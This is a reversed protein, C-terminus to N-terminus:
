TYRNNLIHRHNDEISAISRYLHDGRISLWRIATLWRPQKFKTSIVVIGEDWGILRPKVLKAHADWELFPNVGNACLGMKSTPSAHASIAWVCTKDMILIGNVLLAQGKAHPRVGAGHFLPATGKPTVRPVLKLDVGAVHTPPRIPAGGKQGLERFFGMHPGNLFGVSALFNLPGRSVPQILAVVMHDPTRGSRPFLFSVLAPNKSRALHGPTARINEM